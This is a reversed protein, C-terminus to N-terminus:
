AGSPTLEKESEMFFHILFTWWPRYFLKGSTCFTDELKQKLNNIAFVILRVCYITLTNFRKMGPVFIAFKTSM